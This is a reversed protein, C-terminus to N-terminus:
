DEDSDVNRNNIEAQLNVAEALDDESSKLRERILEAIAKQTRRELKELKKAVDRKLDWDPKRPALTTLDVEEILPEPKAAELQNQVETEVSEPKPKPLQNLRLDEDLPTYNRFIPKPLAEEMNDDEGNQNETIRNRLNKLRERRKHAEEDAKTLEVDM